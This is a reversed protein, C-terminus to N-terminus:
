RALTSFRGDRPVVFAKARASRVAIVDEHWLPIIPLQQALILQADRYAAIRESRVVTQRGRELAADLAADSFRWRNAGERGPAPIHDTGFFWTLVHPEILEPLQLMTLEFQGRDLQAILTATESPRLEAEIGVDHLMAAIARAVSLRFRESGCRLSVHLRVGAADAHLGAAELLASAKEPDFAYLPTNPDFAWHGPPIPTRALQARGGLKARILAPRDIAYAIAQRVRADALPGAKTNIGIYTTSIGRASTVDLGAPAFLPLLQTPVASLALDGAGALLRLTRINDDRVVLMTVEPFIPVGAYWRPNKELVVRGTERRLLRYPGAGIPEPGGLMGIRHGADEARLIPLELDTLFTAHPGDLQFVVTRADAAFVKAIRRYTAAYRTALRPDVISHFTAVVDDADLASGDSFSLGPRLTARYENPATVDVREALDPIVELTQPDITVLSAFLLRSLKHGYPDSVFRPDIEQVDRPLLM